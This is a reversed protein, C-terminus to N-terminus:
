CEPSGFVCRPQGAQAAASVPPPPPAPQAQFTASSADTSSSSAVGPSRAVFAQRPAARVAATIRQQPSPAPLRSSLTPARRRVQAASRGGAHSAPKPTGASHVPAPAIPRLVGAIEGGATAACVVGVCVAAAKGGITAAGGGAAAAGGIGVRALLTSSQAHVDHALGALKTGLGQAAIAIAITDFPLALAAASRRLLMRRRAHWVAWCDECGAVHFLVRQYREEELAHSRDHRGATIFEDLLARQEACVAGNAREGIFAAMKMRARRSVSKTKSASWGLAEPLGRPQAGRARSAALVHDYWAEAWRRQDGHLVSFIERIRWWQRADDTLACLDDCDAAPSPSDDVSIGARHRLEASRHGDIVRRRACIIWLSKVEDPEGLHDGAAVIQALAEDVAEFVGSSGVRRLYAPAIASVVSERMRLLARERELQEHRERQARVSM